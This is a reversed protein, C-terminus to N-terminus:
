EKTATNMAVEVNAKPSEGNKGEGFYITRHPFPMEIGREDFVKKVIANYARGIAWQKGPLTKLRTRVVVANDGFSMVGMWEMNDLLSSAIDKDEALQDFADLMAQRVEDTDERYAVGMDCVFYAFDRMYNTVMDVSSFPIIHYAGQADRLSVSRITLREVTGLTGSLTVVDGVNIASEFQIFVGTIIDQVLKQAGFGIALGLVGASALLPAIDIGLESLAFMLTIVVIAITGANRLLSLLTVERSTAVNGYDANLRYDIWSVMALWILFSALLIVLTSIIAATAQVGVQSQLWEEIDLLGVVDIAFAGIIVAVILRFVQLGAPVFRNLRPELLPLREGVGDPVSIGSSLFRSIAGTAIMGALLSLLIKGTAGLVPSLMGDPRSVVIVFLVALYLIVPVHWRMALRRLWTNENANKDSLWDAVAKKNRIVMALSILLAVVAIVLSVARGAIFSVNQNIIPLVLLQGYGILSVLFTLRTDLYHAALNSIALLRLKSTTPSIILRIAVKSLEVIMFANLYLTQRIGIQGADGLAYIAVVYGLGWALIVVGADVIVSILVAVITSIFGGNASHAGLKRYLPKVLTRLGFFIAYTALIIFFLSKIADWLVSNTDSRGLAGLTRGTEALRTRLTEVTGAIAQSSEKTFNALRRGLSLNELPTSKQAVSPQISNKADTEAIDSTKNEQITDLKELEKILAERARDDKLMEVLAKAQNTVDPTTREQPVAVALFMSVLFAFTMTLRSATKMM